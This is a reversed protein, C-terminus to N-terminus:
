LKNVVVVKQSTICNPKTPPYRVHEAGTSREREEKPFEEKINFILVARFVQFNLNEGSIVEKHM